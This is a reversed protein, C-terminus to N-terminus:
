RHNHFEYTEEQDQNKERLIRKLVKGSPNRPLEKIIEFQKPIKFKALKNVCFNKIEDMTISEGEKVVIFAKPVEGWKQHPIGVVAAELISPHEYLVREVELSAINEGGSIIMDKKRDLIYLYGDEDLRGMDGTHFWGNKIANKTAEENKWYGKTVKPGRLVIEGVEGPPVDAGNHDVVRVDLHICPIGVSGLKEFTKDRPVFTDGSVTETLGYADCFWANKFIDQVNKILSEPMREGGAIIYRISDLNYDRINDKQLLMIIMAPALWVNTPREAEITELLKQPNFNRMIVVSGGRYLTGTTTLDLGGVHYMPGTILTKDEPVIDFTWIHGINKWYLNEYSIMVGKPRSTTGSTYMLRHLDSLEIHADPVHIGSNTSIMNHYSKWNSNLENSLTIYHHIENLEDRISDITEHFDGETVLVNAGAHNLIYSIEDAALRFNLPLFVAGIRNAAFIIELFESCNYLLIGIIDGKKVGLNLLGQALASVRNNFEKYTIRRDQYVIVEKEPQERAWRRIVSSYNLNGEFKM